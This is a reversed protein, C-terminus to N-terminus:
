LGVVMVRLGSFGVVICCLCWSGAFCVLFDTRALYWLGCVFRRLSGVGLSLWLPLIQTAVFGFGVVLGYVGFWFRGLWM